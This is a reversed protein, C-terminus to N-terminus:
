APQDRNRAIRKDTRLALSLQIVVSAIEHQAIVDAPPVLESM